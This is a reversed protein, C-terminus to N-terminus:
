EPQDQQHSKRNNDMYLGALRDLFCHNGYQKGGDFTQTIKETDLDMKVCGWQTLLVLYKDKWIAMQNIRDGAKRCVFPRRFLSEPVTEKPYRIHITRRHPYRHLLKNRNASYAISKLNDHAISNRDPDAM